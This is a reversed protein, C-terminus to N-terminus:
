EHPPTAARMGLRGPSIRDRVFSRSSISRMCPWECLSLKLFSVDVRLEDSLGAADCSSTAATCEDRTPEVMVSLTVPYWRYSKFSLALSCMKSTVTCVFAALIAVTRRSSCDAYPWVPHRDSVSTPDLVPTTPKIAICAPNVATVLMSCSVSYTPTCRCTFCASPPAPYSSLAALMVMTCPDTDDDTADGVDSMTTPSAITCQSYLAVASKPLRSAMTPHNAASAGGTSSSSHICSSSPGAISCVRFFGVTCRSAYVVAFKSAASCARYPLTVVYADSRAVRVSYRAVSSFSADRARTADPNWCSVDVRLEDSLGAADCSSTAAACVATSPSVVTTCTVPYWRYSKFSLALSCM